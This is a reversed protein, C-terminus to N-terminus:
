QMPLIKRKTVLWRNVPNTVMTIHKLFFAGGHARTLLDNDCFNNIDSRITQQTVEFTKALSEVSVYGEEEALNLIDRQRKNLKEM